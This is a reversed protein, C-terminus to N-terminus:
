KQIAAYFLLSIESVTTKKNALIRNCIPGKIDAQRSRLNWVFHMTYLANMCTLFVFTLIPTAIFLFLYLRFRLPSLVAFAQDQKSRIEMYRMKSTLSDDNDPVHYTGAAVADKRRM